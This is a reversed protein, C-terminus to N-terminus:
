WPTASLVEGPTLAEYAEQMNLAQRPRRDKIELYGDSSQQVKDIDVM